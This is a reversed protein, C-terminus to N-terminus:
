ILPPACLFLTRAGGRKTQLLQIFYPLSKLGLKERLNKNKLRMLTPYHTKDGHLIYSLNEVVYADAAVLDDEIKIKGDNYLRDVITSDSFRTGVFLSGEYMGYLKINNNELIRKKSRRIIKRNVNIINKWKNNSDVIWNDEYGLGKFYINSAKSYDNLKLAFLANQPRILQAVAQLLSSKGSGNEGVFAFIGNTVPLELHLEKIGKIDKIDITLSNEM